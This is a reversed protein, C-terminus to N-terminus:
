YLSERNNLRSWTNAINSFVSKPLYNAIFFKIFCKVNFYILDSLPMSLGLEKRLELLEKRVKLIHKPATSIGGIRMSAVNVDIFVIDSFEKIVCFLLKSDGAIKYKTDFIYGSETFLSVHHFVGQHCPLAPRGNSWEPGSSIKGYVKLEQDKENVLSVKGYVLKQSSYNVQQLKSLFEGIENFNLVDGAGLFVIWDGTVLNLAKNWADYIGYDRESVMCDVLGSNNIISVTSDCSLGDVVIWEFEFRSDEFHNKVSNINNITLSIESEANYTSTIISVKM